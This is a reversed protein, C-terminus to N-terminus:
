PVNFIKNATDTGAASSFYYEGNADTVATALLTVGDTDFLQVTIGALPPEDPDQVGNADSDLWVRNGIELPPRDCLPEIVGLSNSKGFFDTGINNTRYIELEHDFTSSLDDLGFVMHGGSWDRIPDMASTLVTDLTPLALVSGQATENHEFASSPDQWNDDFYESDRDAEAANFAWTGDGNDTARVVDGFADGRITAGGIPPQQNHGVQDGWRDRLGIIMENDAGFTIGSLMPQPYWHELGISQVGVPPYVDSWANWNATNTGAPCVGNSLGCGRNYDLDFETAKALLGNSAEDFSYVYAKLAGTAEGSCTMGVYIRGDHSVTGYPRLEAANGGDCIPADGAEYSAASVLDISTVDGAVPAVPTVSDGIPLRYINRDFLNMAYLTDGDANLSIGGLGMHGAQTYADVDTASIPNA